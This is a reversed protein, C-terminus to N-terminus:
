PRSTGTILRLSEIPAGSFEHAWLIWADNFRQRGMRVYSIAKNDIGITSALNRTTTWGLYKAIYDLMADVPHNYVVPVTTNSYTVWWQDGKRIASQVTIM